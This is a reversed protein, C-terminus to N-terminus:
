INIQFIKSSIVKFAILLFAKQITVTRLLNWKKIQTTHSTLPRKVLRYFIKFQVAALVEIDRYREPIENRSKEMCIHIFLHLFFNNAFQSNIKICKKKTWEYKKAKQINIMHIIKHKSNFSKWQLHQIFITSYFYKEIWVTM